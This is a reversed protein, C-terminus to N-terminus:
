AQQILLKGLFQLEMQHQVIVARVFMRFHLGPERAMGAETKMKNGGTRTPEVLHLTPKTLQGLLGHSAAGKATDGIQLLSDVLEQLCPVLRWSWKRPRRSHFFDHCFHLSRSLRQCLDLGAPRQSFSPFLSSLM